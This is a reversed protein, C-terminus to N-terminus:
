IAKIDKESPAKANTNNTNELWYNITKIVTPFDLPKTLFDNMGSELCSLRIEETVGATVAIIPLDPHTKRIIRAAELGDMIPMQCDMLVIDFPEAICRDVAQQGNVVSVVTHGHSVLMKELIMRNV